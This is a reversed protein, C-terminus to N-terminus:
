MSGKLERLLESMTTKAKGPYRGSEVAELNISPDGVAILGVM